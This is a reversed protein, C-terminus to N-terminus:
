FFVGPCSGPCRNKYGSPGEVSLVTIHRSTQRHLTPGRTVHSFAVGGHPATRAEVHLKPVYGASENAVGEETNTM